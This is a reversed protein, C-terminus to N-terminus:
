EAIHTAPNTSSEDHSIVCNANGPFNSGACPSTDYNIIYIYIYM